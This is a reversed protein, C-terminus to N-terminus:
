TRVETQNENPKQDSNEKTASDLSKVMYVGKVKMLLSVLMPLRPHKKCELYLM